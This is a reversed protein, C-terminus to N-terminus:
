AMKRKALYFKGHALADRVHRRSTGPLAQVMDDAAAENAYSDKMTNSQMVLQAGNQVCLLEIAGILKMTRTHPGSSGHVRNFEECVVVKPTYANFIGVLGKVSDLIYGGVVHETELDIVAVGTTDGPDIALLNSV